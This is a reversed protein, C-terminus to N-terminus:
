NDDWQHGGYKDVLSYGVLAFLGGPGCLVIAGAWRETSSAGEELAGELWAPVPLDVLYRYGIFVGAVMLVIGVALLWVGLRYWKKGTM